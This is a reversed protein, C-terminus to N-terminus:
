GLYLYVFCALYGGRESYCGLCFGAQVMILLLKSLLESNIILMVSNLSVFVTFITVEMILSYKRDEPTSFICLSNFYMILVNYIYM